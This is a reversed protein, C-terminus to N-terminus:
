SRGDKRVVLEYHSLERTEVHAKLEFRDELLSRIMLQLQSQTIRGSSCDVKAQIDFQESDVWSPTGVMQTNLLPTNGRYGDALLIRLTAGSMRWM